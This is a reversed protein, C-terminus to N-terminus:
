MCICTSVYAHTPILCENNWGCSTARQTLNRKKVTTIIITTATATTTKSATTIKNNSAWACTQINIVSYWKSSFKEVSIESLKCVSITVYLDFWGTLRGPWLCCECVYMWVYLLDYKETIKFYNANNRKEIKNKKEVNKKVQRQENTTRCHNDKLDFVLQRGRRTLPWANAKAIKNAILAWSAQESLVYVAM